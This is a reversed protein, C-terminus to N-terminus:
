ARSAPQAEPFPILGPDKKEWKAAYEQEWGEVLEAFYNFSGGDFDIMGGYARGEAFVVLAHRLRALLACRVAEDQPLALRRQCPAYGNMWARAQTNAEPSIPRWGTPTGLAILRQALRWAKQEM